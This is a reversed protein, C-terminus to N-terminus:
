EEEDSWGFNSNLKEFAKSAIQELDIYSGPYMQLRAATVETPWDVNLGQEDKRKIPFGSGLKTSFLDFFRRPGVGVFPEFHVKDHDQSFGLTISDDHFQEARSKEYPEIYVVRRVGAAIIHKACNHCPFTTGYLTSNLTSVQSRACSLIAEMEAHVVRGFETLDGIKSNSLSRSISDDLKAELEALQGDKHSRKKVADSCRLEESISKMAAEKIEAMIVTQEYKNSDFGTHHDPHKRTYDRGNQCDEIDKTQPNFVPWYLGGGFKPCDNAGTAIVQHDKAIVAGVQRSLDASRLSAAFALFMAYEDFTPTKFPHGFMIDVIRTVSNRLRDDDGDIRVFFDSLHFTDTVCQGHELHENEDRIMLTAADEPCINKDDVLHRKRRQEDAHVGLLCFGEPYVQRLHKVEDPHKLSDVIVARRDVRLRKGTEDLSRNRIHNIAGLALIENNKSERRARNGADMYGKVRDYESDKAVEPPFYKKIV